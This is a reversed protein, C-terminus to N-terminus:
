GTKAKRIFNELAEVRKELDGLIRRYEEFDAFVKATRTRHEDLSFNDKGQM